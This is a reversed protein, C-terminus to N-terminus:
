ARFQQYPPHQHTREVICHANSLQVSAITATPDGTLDVERRPHLVLVRFGSGAVAAGGDEADMRERILAHLAATADHLRFRRQLVVGSPFRLQVRTVGPGAGPEASLAPPPSVAEGSGVAGPVPLASLAAPAGTSKPAPSARGGCSAPGSGNEEEDAEEEECRADLAACEGNEDKGDDSVILEEVEDGDDDVVQM